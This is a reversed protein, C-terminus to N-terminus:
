PIPKTSTFLLSNDSLSILAQEHPMKSGIGLGKFTIAASLIRFVKYFVTRFILPKPLSKPFFHVFQILPLCVQPHLQVAISSAPTSLRTLIHLSFLLCCCLSNISFINLYFSLGTPALPYDDHLSKPQRLLSIENKM